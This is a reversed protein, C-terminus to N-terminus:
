RGAEPPQPVVLVFDALGHSAAELSGLEGQAVTAITMIRLHPVERRLYWVIGEGRQSHYSGNLHLYGAEPLRSRLISNAMAADKLAQAAALNEPKVGGHGAMAMID